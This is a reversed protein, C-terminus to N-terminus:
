KILYTSVTSNFRKETSYNDAKVKKFLLKNYSLDKNLFLVSINILWIFCIWFGYIFFLKTEIKRIFSVFRITM